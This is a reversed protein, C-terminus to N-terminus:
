IASPVGIDSRKTNHNGESRQSDFQNALTENTLQNKRQLSHGLIPFGDQLM